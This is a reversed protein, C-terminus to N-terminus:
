STRAHSAREVVNVLLRGREPTHEFTDILTLFGRLSPRAFPVHTLDSTTTFRLSPLILQKHTHGALVQLHSRLNPFNSCDKNCIPCVPSTSQAMIANVDDPLLDLPVKGEDSVQLHINQVEDAKDDM